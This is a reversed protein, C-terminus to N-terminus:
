SAGAFYHAVCTLLRFGSRSPPRRLYTSVGERVTPSRSVKAKRRKVKSKYDACATYLTRTARGSARTTPQGEAERSLSGSENRAEVVFEPCSTQPIRIGVSFSM